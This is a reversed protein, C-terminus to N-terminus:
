IQVAHRRQVGQVPKHALLRFEALRAAHFGERGGAAAESPRQGDGEIRDLPDEKGDCHFASEGEDIISQINHGKQYERSKQSPM